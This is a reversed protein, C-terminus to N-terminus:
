EVADRAAGPRATAPAQTPPGASDRSREFALLAAGIIGADNRLAAPVVPASTTLFSAYKETRKSVGGGLVILRPSFLTEIHDLHEDLDAAWRKWSRRRRIRAAASSRSEADKGRIVLHGLEVNPVLEGDVFVGSGVGTVLTLVIVTGSDALTLAARLGAIGSGIVLFDGHM